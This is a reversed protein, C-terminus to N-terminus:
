KTYEMNSAYEPLEELCSSNMKIDINSINLDRPHIRLSEGEKSIIPCIMVLILFLKGM